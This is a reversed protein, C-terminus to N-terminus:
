RPAAGVVDMLIHMRENSDSTSTSTQKGRTREGTETLMRLIRELEPGCREVPSVAGLCLRFGYGLHPRELRADSDVVMLIPDSGKLQPSKRLVEHSQDATLQYLNQGALFADVTALHEDLIRRAAANWGTDIVYIDLRKGRLLDLEAPASGSSKKAPKGAPEARHFVVRSPGLTVTLGLQEPGHFQVDELELQGPAFKQLAIPQDEFQDLQPRVLAAVMKGLMGKGTLQVDTLTAHLQDDVQVRGTLELTTSFLGKRAQVVAEVGMSRGGRGRLRLKVSEVTAHHAQVLQNAIRLIVREIAPVDLQLVVQGDAMEVATEQAGDPPNDRVALRLGSSSFGVRLPIENGGLWQTVQNLVAPMGGDVKGLLQPPPSGSAPRPSSSQSMATPAPSRNTM